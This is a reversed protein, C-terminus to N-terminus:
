ERDFGGIGYFPPVRAQQAIGRFVIGTQVKWAAELDIRFVGDDCAEDLVGDGELGRAGAEEVDRFGHIQRGFFLFLDPSLAPHEVEFFHLGLLAQAHDGRGRGLHFQAVQHAHEPLFRDLVGRRHFRPHVALNRLARGLVRFRVLLAFEALLFLVLLQRRLLRLVRGLAHVEGDELDVGEGVAALAEFDVLVGLLHVAGAEADVVGGELEDEEFGAEM